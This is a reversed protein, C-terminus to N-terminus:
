KGGIWPLHGIIWKASRFGFVIIEFAVVFQLVTLLTSFPIIPSFVYMYGTVSSIASAVADPFGTSTPFLAVIGSVILYALNLIATTIM